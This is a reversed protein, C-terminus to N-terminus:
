HVNNKRREKISIISNIPAKITYILSYIVVFIELRGIFMIASSVYYMYTPSDIAIMSTSLGVNGVMSATEFLAQSLPVGGFTFITSGLLFLGLYTIIYLNNQHLLGEDLYLDNDYLHVRDAHKTSLTSFTDRIKMGVSRIFLHIRFIKLGGSTSNSQAGVLMLAILIIIIAPFTDAYLPTLQFGCSTLASTTLFISHMALDGNAVVGSLASAIVMMPIIIALILVEVRNECNKFFIRFKGKFLFVWSIFSISGMLMLCITIVQIGTTKVVSGTIATTFYGISDAHTSFGGTSVATAAHNFADFPSMGFIMYAIAGSLTMGLYILTITRSSRLLNPLFRDTHGEASYLRMAYRDSFVSIMILIIGIGGILMTNTRALLFCRMNEAEVDFVSLGTTTWGSTMEFIAQHFNLVGSLWFPASAGLIAILWASVVIFADQHNALRGHNRHFILTFFLTFGVVIFVAGPTLFAWAYKWESPTFIIYILPLLIFIGIMGTILGLYGAVLQAGRVEKRNSNSSKRLTM